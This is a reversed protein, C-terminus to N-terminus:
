LLGVIIFWIVPVFVSPLFDGVRISKIELLSLGIGLIIVSGVASMEVTMTETLISSALQGLVVISGQYILVSVASFIVGYGLTATFIIATVGDLVSKIFLTEYEQNVGAEISGIIAMAGVCYLLSAMVFGKAFGGESKSFRAEVKEGFQHLRREIGIWTGFMGGLVLSFILLLVNKSQIAGNIGIVVVSLGIGQMLITQYTEKLGRKLFLGVFGGSVIAVVNVFVGIM